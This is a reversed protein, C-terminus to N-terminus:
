CWFASYKAAFSGFTPVLSPRKLYFNMEDANVLVGGKADFDVRALISKKRDPPCKTSLFASM